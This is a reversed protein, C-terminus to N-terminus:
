KMRSWVGEGKVMFTVENFGGKDSHDAGLVEHKWGMRDAFRTYMEYLDKAFLNAEEGGEAGRIEVIVNKDDNPDRPLLLVKLEDELQAIRAEAQDIEARMEDREAGAADALLERATALDDIASRYERYPGIISELEKARRGLDRSANRDSYVAPDSLRAQVDDYETELDALRELM